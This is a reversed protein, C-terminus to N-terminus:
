NVGNNMDTKKDHKGTMTMLLHSSMLLLFYRPRMHLKFIKGKGWLKFHDSRSKGAEWRHNSGERCNVQPCIHLWNEQKKKEKLDGGDEDASIMEWSQNSIALTPFCALQKIVLIGVVRCLIGRSVRWKGLLIIINSMLMLMKFVIKLRRPPGPNSEIDGSLLIRAKPDSGLGTRPGQQGGGSSGEPRPAMETAADRQEVQLHSTESTSLINLDGAAGRIQERCTQEWEAWESHQCWLM